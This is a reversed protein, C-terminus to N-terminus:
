QLLLPPFFADLILITLTMFMVSATTTRGVGSAGGSTRLGMHISILPIALGFTVAKTMSYFMDWNHWFLRAGYLFSEYGLGLTLRAAVMGATVGVLNAVAVLVPLVIIGALIRPAALIAVPDRGLAEFADIQESVKMTGLEATIRAGVRGVLVIATLVPGLELVVSSTVVSGLIYLPVSGQFQYGGQQSTVIGALVATVLVIPLSQAGMIYIQNLISRFSVQLGVLARVSRALLLGLQGAHEAVLASTRGIAALPRGILPIGSQSTTSTASM